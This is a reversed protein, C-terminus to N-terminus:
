KLRRSFLLWSILAITFFELGLMLSSLASRVGEWIVSISIESAQSIAGAANYFGTTTGLLGIALALLGLYVVLNVDRKKEETNKGFAKILFYIIVGLLFIGNILLLLGFIGSEKIAEMM